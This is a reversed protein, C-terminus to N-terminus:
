RVRQVELGLTWSHKVKQAKQRQLFIGAQLSEACAMHGRQVAKQSLAM